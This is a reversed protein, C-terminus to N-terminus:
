DNGNNLLHHPAEMAPTGHAEENRGFDDMNDDSSANELAQELISPTEHAGAEVTDLRSM